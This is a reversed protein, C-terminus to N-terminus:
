LWGGRGRKYSHQEFITNPDARVKKKDYEREEAQRAKSAAVREKLSQMRGEHEEKHRGSNKVGKPNSKSLVKRSMWDGFSM